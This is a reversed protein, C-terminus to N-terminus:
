SPGGRDAGAFARGLVTREEVPAVAMMTTAVREAKAKWPSGRPWPRVHGFLGGSEVARLWRGLSPWGPEASRWPSTRARTEALSTGLMGYLACALAIASARYHRGAVAGRPLVTLTAKCRLCVYRRARVVVLV